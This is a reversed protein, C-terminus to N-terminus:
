PKVPSLKLSRLIREADSKLAAAEALPYRGAVTAGGATQKIIYYDLRWREKGQEVDLEFQAIMQANAEGAQLLRPPTARLVRLKEKQAWANVEAVLVPATPIQGSPEFTMQLGGGGPEQLTIQKRDAGQVSWRRPYVFRVGLAPEDFLLLTNDDNPELDAARVAQDGLAPNGSELRRTLVYKGEIKGNTKGDPDILWSVGELYLYSLHNSELDFFFYGDLQQRNPGDENVGTVAGSLGVRALRCGNRLAVEQLKCTVKGTKIEELDTLELVAQTGAPWEDGVRVEGEKLLSRLAPTFVDTRVMDIENWTLPGDPSFPVEAQKLRLLVLRRVTPRLSTQQPQEGVKRRFDLRQYIRLTKTVQGALDRDLIREDYEVASEGNVPLTKAQKDKSMGAPLTLNGNLEVRSSVRYQSGIAPTEHLRVADEARASFTVYGVGVLWTALAIRLGEHM